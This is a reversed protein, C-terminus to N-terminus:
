LWRCSIESLMPASAFNEPRTTFQLQIEHEDHRRSECLPLHAARLSHVDGHLRMRSWSSTRLATRNARRCMSATTDQEPIPELLCRPIAKEAQVSGLSCHLAQLLAELALGCRLEQGDPQM